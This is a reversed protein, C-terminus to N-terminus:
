YRMTQTEVTTTTPSVSLPTILTTEETTTTTTSGRHRRHEDDHDDITDCSSFSLLGAMAPLTLLLKQM